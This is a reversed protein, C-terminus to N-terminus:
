AMLWPVYDESGSRRAFHYLNPALAGQSIAYFPWFFRRAAQDIQNELLTVKQRSVRPGSEGYRGRM